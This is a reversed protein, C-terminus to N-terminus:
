RGGVLDQIGVVYLAWVGILTHSVAVGVLSRQRSFLWGWFLGPVFAALAFGIGIHTHMAAFLLNSVVVASWDIRGRGPRFIHLSGQLGSRCFLEQAPSLTLYALLSGAYFGPSFPRDGLVADWHFLRAGAAGHAHHLWRWKAALIAAMWPLSLAVGELAHRRWRDLTLGFSVLPLGSDRVLVLSTLASVAIGAASFWSQELRDAPHVAQMAAVVLVYGGIFSFQTVLFHGAAARVRAEAVESQMAALTTSNSRRLREALIGALNSFLRARVALEDADRLLPEIEIAWATVPTAAVVSASAPAAPDVLRMEGVSDGPGLTAVVFSAGEDARRRVEARGEHLVFLCDGQAGEEVIAEGAAFRRYSAITALSSRDASSLGDLLGTPSPDFAEPQTPM